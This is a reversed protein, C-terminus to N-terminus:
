GRSRHPSVAIPTALKSEEVGGDGGERGGDGLIDVSLRDVAAGFPSMDAPLFLSALGGISRGGV